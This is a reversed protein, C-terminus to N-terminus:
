HYRRRRRRRRRDNVPINPNTRNLIFNKRLYYLGSSMVFSM